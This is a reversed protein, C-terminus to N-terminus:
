VEELEMQWNNMGQWEQFSFKIDDVMMILLPRYFTFIGETRSSGSVQPRAPTAGTVYNLEAACQVEVTQGIWGDDFAPTEGDTCTITSKYKRFRSDALSRKVANVDRRTWADGTPKILELTQTLNRASYPTLQLATMGSLPTIVLLTGMSALQPNIPM